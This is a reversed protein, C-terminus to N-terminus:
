QRHGGPDPYHRRAPGGRAPHAGTQIDWPDGDYCVGLAILKASDMASGGGLAVIFDVGERRCLGIGERCLEM